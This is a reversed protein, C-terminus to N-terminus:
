STQFEISELDFSTFDIWGFVEVNLNELHLADSYKLDGGGSETEFLIYM